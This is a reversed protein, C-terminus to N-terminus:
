PVKCRCAYNVDGWFKAWTAVAGYSSTFLVALCFPTQGLSTSTPLLAHGHQSLRAVHQLLFPWLCLLPFSWSHCWMWCLSDIAWVLDWWSKWFGQQHLFVEWKFMGKGTLVSVCSLQFPMQQRGSYCQQWGFQARCCNLQLYLTVLCHFCIKSCGGSLAPHIEMQLTHNVWSPIQNSSPPLLLLGTTNM